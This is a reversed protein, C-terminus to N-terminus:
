GWYQAEWGSEPSGPYLRGLLSYISETEPTQFDAITEELVSGVGTILGTILQNIGASKLQKIQMAMEKDFLIRQLVLKESEVDNKARAEQAKFRMSKLDEIIGKSLKSLEEAPQIAAELGVTDIANRLTREHRGVEKMFSGSQKGFINAGTQRGRQQAGATVQAVPQSVGERGYMDLAM